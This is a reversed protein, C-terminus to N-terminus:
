PIIHFFFFHNKTDPLLIHYSQEWQCPVPKSHVFLSPRLGGRFNFWLTYVIWSLDIWAKSSRLLQLSSNYLSSMSFAPKDSLSLYSSLIMACSWLNMQYIDQEPFTMWFLTDIILGMARCVTYFRFLELTRVIPIGYIIGTFKYKLFTECISEWFMVSVSM